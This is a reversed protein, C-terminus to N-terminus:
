EWDSLLKMNKRFKWIPCWTKAWTIILIFPPLVQDLLHLRSLPVKPKHMNVAGHDPWHWSCAAQWCAPLSLWPEAAALCLVQQLQHHKIRKWQRRNRQYRRPMATNRKPTHKCKQGLAKYILSSIRVQWSSTNQFVLILSGKRSDSTESCHTVNQIKISLAVKIDNKWDNVSTAASRRLLNLPCAQQDQQKPM